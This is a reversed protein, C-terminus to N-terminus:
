DGGGGGGGGEGGSSRRREGREGPLTRHLFGGGAVGSLSFLRLFLSGCRRCCPHPGGGRGKGVPPRGWRDATRGCAWILVTLSLHHLSLLPFLLSTIIHCGSMHPGRPDWASEAAVDSLVPTLVVSPDLTFPKTLQPIDPVQNQSQPVIKSAETYKRKKRERRKREKKKERKRERGAEEGEERERSEPSPSRALPPPPPKGVVAAAVTVVARRRRVARRCSPPPAAARRRRVARHCSPPPAAARPRRRPPVFATARHLPFLPPLPLHLPPRSRSSAPTQLTPPPFPSWRRTSSLSAFGNTSVGVRFSARRRGAVFLLPAAARTSPPRRAGTTPSAFSPAASRSPFALEGASPVDAASVSPM